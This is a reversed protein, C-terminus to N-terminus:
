LRSLVANDFNNLVPKFDAYLMTTRHEFDYRFDDSEMFLIKGHSIVDFRLELFARELFVIDVNETDLALSFIDFLINYVELTDRSSVRPDSFVVGIDVDSLKGAVGEAHSGFLYVLGVKLHKLEGIPLQIKNIDKM